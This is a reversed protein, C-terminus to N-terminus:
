SAPVTSTNCRVPVAIRIESAAPRRFGYSGPPDPSAVNARYEPSQDQSRPTHRVAPRNYGRSDWRTSRPCRYLIVGVKGACVADRIGGCSRVAKRDGESQQLYRIIERSLQMSPDSLPQIRLDQPGNKM